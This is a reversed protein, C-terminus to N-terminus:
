GARAALAAKLITVVTSRCNEESVFSSYGAKVLEERFAAMSAKIENEPVETDPDQDERAM